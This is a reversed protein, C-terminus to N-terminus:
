FRTVISLDFNQPKDWAQKRLPRSFDFRLPGLPSEWFVSVGVTARVHMKNSDVGGSTMNIGATNDVGWVSGIDAFVGGAMNYEDPLGLPFKAELQVAFYRNGGLFDQNVAGFDRPGSAGAAFGRMVSGLQYRERFRSKGSIMHLMGVRADATLRVDENFVATTYAFRAETKVSRRSKNGIFLDQSLSAVFGSNPNFGKERTDYTFTYGLSGTVVNGDIQDDLLRTSSNVDLGTLRDLRLGQRVQLTSLPSVPFTLSNDFFAERTNFKNTNLNSTETYGVGLSYSLNRGLLRPETFYLSIDRSGKITNFTAAIQQGRGLFNSESFSIGFGVGQQAGFSVSLGLSGTPQEEVQVDIIAQDPASGERPEVTADSFYELARIREAAERIERPNLPDGEATEFQQRIVRDLTTANGQIDIREVFIREGRVMAFEVDIIGNRNDRTFRPEARVFRLGKSEAISELQAINAEMVGPSFVTGPRIRLARALEAQDLGDVETVVTAQGFKFQQGERINFTLFFGDRERTLESSVSLIEFDVYGRSLYFDTLLRRDLSIREAIFTDSQILWRLAGAQKTSLVQRLRYTSFARNGVFSLREIEVVNGERIEFALDVRNNGRPIVKPTVEAAIRGRAGYLEAIARADAEVVSPSLVRGARTRVVEALQESKLRKNGEFNVIGIIPYEKVEIALAAGRPTVTVTEFLGSANLASVAANVQGASVTEGRRIGTLGIITSDDVRVNGSIDFSSFRFSQAQAPLASIMWAISFVALVTFAFTSLHRQAGKACSLCTATSGRM